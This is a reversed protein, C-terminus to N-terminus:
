PNATGPNLAQPAKTAEPAPAPAQAPAAEAHPAMDWGGGLARILAVATLFRQGHAEIAARQTALTTRQADVVEFYDADGADYRRTILSQTKGAANAAADQHASQDSLLRQASLNDEVERFANLVRARYDAVSEDYAAHARDVNAARRGNDFIPLSLALAGIQGLAWTRSSWMFLDGLDGSEFGGSATLTLDPFFAARAAGIRANAAEMDSVAAAIDPRRTLLTSPLGGPVQPPAGTLPNEEMSFESPLVGLLTALQHEAAARQRDLAALDARTAELDSQTRTYDQAGVEGTDMRRKMINAGKERVAVTERLLKREGDMTRIAFYTQAVDAQLALLVSRYSAEQAAADLHLARENEHLKGFLDPEYSAYATADYLTYPKSPFGPQGSASPGTRAANGGIGISPLFGPASARALDRAQEVRASAAALTPNASAARAELDNLRADGFVTWWAGRDAKELASAPAWPGKAEKQAEAPLPAKARAATDEKFVSPLSFSPPAFDPSLSCGAMLASFLAGAMGAAFARRAPRLNLM